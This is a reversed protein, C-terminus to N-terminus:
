YIKKMNFTVLNLCKLALDKALSVEEDTANECSEFFAMSTKADGCLDQNGIIDNSIIYNYDTKIDPWFIILTGKSDKRVIIKQTKSYKLPLKYHENILKKSEAIAEERTPFLDNKKFNFVYGKEDEISSTYKYIKQTDQDMSFKTKALEVIITNNKHKIKSTFYVEKDLFGKLTRKEDVATKYEMEEELIQLMADKSGKLYLNKISFNSDKEKFLFKSIENELMTITKFCPDVRTPIDLLIAITPEVKIKLYEYIINATDIDIDRNFFRKKLSDNRIMKETAISIFDEEDIIKYKGNPLYLKYANTM